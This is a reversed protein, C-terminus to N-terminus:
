VPATFELKAARSPITKQLIRSFIFNVLLGGGLWALYGGYGGYGVLSVVAMPAMMLPVAAFLMIFVSFSHQGAKQPQSFPIRPYILVTLKTMIMLIIYIFLCHLVAHPFSGFFWAFIGALLITFPFAFFTL